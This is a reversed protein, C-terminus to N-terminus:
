KGGKKRHYASKEDKQKQTQAQTNQLQRSILVAAVIGACVVAIGVAVYLPLKRSTQAAQEQRQVQEPTQGAFPSKSVADQARLVAKMAEDREERAKHLAKRTTELNVIAGRLRAIM